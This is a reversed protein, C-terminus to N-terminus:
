ARDVPGPRKQDLARGGANVQLFNANVATMGRPPGDFLCPREAFEKRESSSLAHVADQLPPLWSKFNRVTRATIAVMFFFCAGRKFKFSM